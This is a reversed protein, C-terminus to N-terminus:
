TRCRSGLVLFQLNPIEMQSFDVTEIRNAALNLYRLQGLLDGAEPSQDIKEVYNFSM